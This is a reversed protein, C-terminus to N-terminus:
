LINYVEDNFVNEVNNHFEDFNRDRNQFDENDHIEENTDGSENTYRIYDNTDHEDEVNM